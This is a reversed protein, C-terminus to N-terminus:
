LFHSTTWTSMLGPPPEQELDNEVRPKKADEFEHEPEEKPTFTKSAPEYSTGAESSQALEMPPPSHVYDGVEEVPM